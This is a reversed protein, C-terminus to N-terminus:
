SIWARQQKRKRPRAPEASSLRRMRARESPPQKLRPKSPWSAIGGAPSTFGAMREGASLWWYCFRRLWRWMSSRIFWM